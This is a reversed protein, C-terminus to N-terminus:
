ELVGNQKLLEFLESQLPKSNEFHSDFILRTAHIFVGPPLSFLGEVVQYYKDENMKGSPLLELRKRLAVVVAPGFVGQRIEARGSTTADDLKQRREPSMMWRYAGEASTVMQSAAKRAEHAAAWANRGVAVGHIDQVRVSKSGDAGEVVEFHTTVIERGQSIMERPIGDIVEPLPILDLQALQNLRYLKDLEQYKEALGPVIANLEPGYEYAFEKMGVWGEGQLWLNRLETRYIMGEDLSRPLEQVKKGDTSAPNVPDPLDSTIQISLGDITEGYRKEMMTRIVALIEKKHTAEISEIERQLAITARIVTQPNANGYKQQIYSELKAREKQMDEIMLRRLGIPMQNWFSAVKPDSSYLVEPQIDKPDELPKQPIERVPEHPDPMPIPVERRKPSPDPKPEPRSPAPRTPVPPAEPLTTPGLTSLKELEAICPRKAWLEAPSFLSLVSWVFVFKQLWFKM